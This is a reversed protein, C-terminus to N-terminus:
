LGACTVLQFSVDPDIPPRVPSPFPELGTFIGSLSLESLNAAVMKEDIVAEPALAEGSPTAGSGSPVLDPFLNAMMSCSTSPLSLDFLSLSLDPPLVEGTLKKVPTNLEGDPPVTSSCNRGPTPTISSTPHTYSTLDNPLTLEDFTVVNTREPAPQQSLKGCQLHQEQQKLPEAPISSEVGDADVPVIPAAPVVSATHSTAAQSSGPSAAASSSSSASTVTASPTVRVM